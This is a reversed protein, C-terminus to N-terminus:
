EAVKETKKKQTKEAVEESIDEETKVSTKTVPKKAEKTGTTKESTEKEAPQETKKVVKAKSSAQKAKTKKSKEGKEEVEAVEVFDDESANESDLIGSSLKGNLISDVVLELYLSIARIADDNGPVLYDINDPSNNTDVVGVIPIRLKNAEKVAIHEHGVDIIFLADPLGTMKKVGGLSKELKDKERTLNLVEKKTLKGFAEKEFQVELEKLRKVQHRITKYNTLMGGLWRDNVYPMGCKEAAEKILDRASHKTGVFLIKGKRAAVSGLFDAAEKLRPLTKDLNIIHIKDHVGFIYEKMKPNWYRTQHGFHVGAKLLDYMTVSAM